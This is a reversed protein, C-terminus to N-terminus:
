VNATIDKSILYNICTTRIIDGNRNVTGGRVQFCILLDMLINVITKCFSSQQIWFEILFSFHSYYRATSSRIEMLRIVNEMLIM